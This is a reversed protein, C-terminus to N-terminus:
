IWDHGRFIDLSNPFLKRIMPRRGKQLRVEFNFKRIEALTLDQYEYIDGYFNCKRCLEIRDRRKLKLSQRISKFRKCNWIDLLSAEMVNGLSMEGLYDNCCIVVDGKYDIVLQSSPRNCDALIPECVVVNGLLGGRNGVFDFDSKVRVKIIARERNGAKDLIKHLRESVKGDYQTLSIEELGASFLQRLLKLTLFDGNSNMKIQAKPLRKSIFRVKEVITRDALPENFSHLHITGSFKLGSLEDVIKTFTEDSMFDKERPFVSVPCGHCKRNCYTSAEIQVWHFMPFQRFRVFAALSKKANEKRLIFRYLEVGTIRVSLKKIASKAVMRMFGEKKKGAIARSISDCRLVLSVNRAMIEVLRIM